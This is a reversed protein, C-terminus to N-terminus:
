WTTDVPPALEMIRSVHFRTQLASMALGANELYRVLYQAICEYMGKDRLQRAMHTLAKMDHRTWAFNMLSALAHTPYVGSRAYFAETTDLDQMSHELRWTISEFLPITHDDHFFLPCLSAANSSVLRDSDELDARLSRILRASPSRETQRLVPLIFPPADIPTPFRRAVSQRCHGRNNLVYEDCAGQHCVHTIHCYMKALGANPEADQVRLWAAREESDFGLGVKAAACRSILINEKRYRVEPTQETPVILMFLLHQRLVSRNQMEEALASTCSPTRVGPIRPGEYPRGSVRCQKKKWLRLQKVALCRRRLIRAAEKKLPRGHWAPLFAAIDSSTAFPPSTASLITQDEETLHDFECSEIIKRHM